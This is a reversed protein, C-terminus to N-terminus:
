EPIAVEHLISKEVQSAKGSSSITLHYIVRFKTVPEQNKYLLGGSSGHLHHPAALASILLKNNLQKNRNRFYTKIFSNYAQVKQEDYQNTGKEASLSVLTEPNANKLADFLKFKSTYGFGTIPLCPKNVLFLFHDYQFWQHYPNMENKTLQYTTGNKDEVEYTFYQNVPTDFWGIMVPRLWIFAFAIILVSTGFLTKHKLEEAVMKNKTILFILIADIAMWKWFLMSGCCFICLHMLFTSSLILISLKKSRLLFIASLEALLVLLQLLLHWSNLFNWISSITAENTNALWGRLHVNLFLNALNNQTLWEYGHPSITIKALGTYFYNAGVICLVLWVFSFKFDSIFAKIYRFSVFMILIDFLLRKDYLEFGAVPYNFQSRYVFAFAIYLPTLLPFRLLAVTLLILVVRDFYFASNLYFNYNYTVLEWTLLFAAAFVLLCESSQYVFEKSFFTKRLFVLPCYMLVLGLLFYPNLLASLLISFSYYPVHNLVAPTNEGFIKKNLLQFNILFGNYFVFLSVLSLALFIFLVLFIKGYHYQSLKNLLPHLVAM